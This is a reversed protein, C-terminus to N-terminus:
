DADAKLRRAVRSSILANPLERLGDLDLKADLVNVLLTTLEPAPAGTDTRFLQMSGYYVSALARAYHGAAETRGQEWESVYEALGDLQEPWRKHLIRYTALVAASLCDLTPDHQWFTVPLKMADLNPGSALVAETASRLNKTRWQPLKWSLMRPHPELAADRSGVGLFLENEKPEQGFAARERSWSM